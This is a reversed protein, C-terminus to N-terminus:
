NSGGPQTPLNAAKWALMGGQLSNVNTYGLLHLGMVLISSHGGGIAYIVIPSSKAPLQDLSTFFNNFLIFKAGPIHGYQQHDSASNMDILTPPTGRTIEQSLTISDVQYYNVPLNSLFNNLMSFLAQDVIMPKLSLVQAASPTGGSVIPYKSAHVWSSFGGALDHVDSYGLLMLAALAMGSRNGSNSYIVINANQAPLKDLNNLLSRLPINVAGQIYGSKSIESPDRVDLLFPKQPFALGAKLDIAQIYGYGNGPQLKGMLQNFLSQIDPPTGPIQTSSAVSTGNATQAVAPAAQGSFKSNAAPTSAGSCAALLMVVVVLLISLVRINRRM